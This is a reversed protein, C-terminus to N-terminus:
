ILFKCLKETTSFQVGLLIRENKSKETYSWQIAQVYNKNKFLLIQLSRRTKM